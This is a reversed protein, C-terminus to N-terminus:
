FRFGPKPGFRPKNGLLQKASKEEKASQGIKEFGQLLDVGPGDIDAGSDDGFLNFSFLDDHTADLYRDPDIRKCPSEYYKLVKSKDIPNTLKQNANLTTIDALIGPTLVLRDDGKSASRKAPSNCPSPGINALFNESFPDYPARNHDNAVFTEDHINFAPSWPQVEDGLGLRKIPSNVMQQIKRRHNRLNTNPSLSLPPKLPKKFKEIPTLPAANVSLYENRLPSSGLTHLPDKIARLRMPSIDHSSSRIRAIEEEARGRKIRPPEVDLDSTLIPAGIRPRMASSELSSYYGSDNMASAKRKKPRSAGSNATAPRSPTPPTADRHFIRPAVPPSSRIAQLPSSHRTNLTEGQEDEQLAPDSAPITADSSLDPAQSTATPKTPPPPPMYMAAASAAAPTPKPALPQAQEAFIAPMGSVSMSSMIAPKRLSRDKIFQSEMGAEIVWYHGKGPDDKPREQKVFAKHLSLNHRISNQWGFDGSGYFDFSDSIWKYIQSLTLRRNPARLIAMGILTAYSYPPKSGDDEIPAFEHPAPIYGSLDEEPKSKKIPRDKPLDIDSLSRKHSSITQVPASPRPPMSYGPINEQEPHGARDSPVSPFSTFLPFRSPHLSTHLHYQRHSPRKTPSDTPFNVPNPASIPVFDLKDNRSNNANQANHYHKVPSLRHSKMSPPNLVMKERNIHENRLPQLPMPSPQLKKPQTSSPKTTAPQPQEDQYIRLPPPHRTSAM